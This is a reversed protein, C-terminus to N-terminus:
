DTAATVAAGRDWLRAPCEFALHPAFKRNRNHAGIRARRRHGTRRGPGPRRQRSRAILEEIARPQDGAPRYDSVLRFPGGKPAAAAREADRPHRQAWEPRLPAGEGRARENATQTTM